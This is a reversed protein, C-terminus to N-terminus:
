EDTHTMYKNPSTRLLDRIPFELVDYKQSPYKLDSIKESDIDKLNIGRNILAGIIESRIDGGWRYADNYVKVRDNEIEVPKYVIDANVPYNLKIWFSVTRFKKYKELLDDESNNMRKQIYWALEAADENRMRLCGHSAYTGISKIANTGHLRLGDGMLMKVPGLPNKPGPPAPKAGFAWPSDPPLWWPNWIITDIQQSGVPTKYILQGAAIPFNKIEKGNDYLRVNRAPINIVLKLDPYVPGVEGETLVQQNIDVAREFKGPTDSREYPNKRANLTHYLSLVIAISVLIAFIRAPKM